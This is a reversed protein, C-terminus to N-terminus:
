FNGEKKMCKTHFLIYSNFYKTNLISQIIIKSFIICRFCTPQHLSTMHRKILINEVYKKNETQKYNM